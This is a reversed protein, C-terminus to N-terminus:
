YTRIEPWRGLILRALIKVKLARVSDCFIIIKNDVLEYEHLIKKAGRLNENTTKSDEELFIPVTVGSSKLYDAIIGAESVEPLNPNTHGGTTIIAAVKRDKLFGVVLGLYEKIEKTLYCGYGLVVVVSNDKEGM